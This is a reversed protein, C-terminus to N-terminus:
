LYKRPDAIKGEIATAAATAPSMLHVTGGKGMRGNFNRNTTSACVEGDALVGNSMGLCAGCTSNTVCFGADLFIDILGEKMADRYIKPTAPSLIGRVNEALKKGKLIGAAIRLDELRGNTCSGLYIQDVKTDNFEAAPKVQDPKYGFTAVPVLATADIEIVQDYVADDDSSWKRYEALAAEKSAFESAIFPWLYEVTTIDPMCIGSTGGAEVAMNCLTMRSEMTLSDVTSGCFEIVRDTAGNVGIKGIIALILDKAYVGKPFQGNINFRITKPERFACVGKLIGVELDTTGVGAAFAGFAGHTCTHSDGMIVTNGPRIFGKEPFLAHCVGNAGIDFFDKIGHRHAWDRLIKGQTATKSDKAPTVHDIVAKIKAPDFVRDKKREILDDIAIPTTIEHCLVVDLKLVRTGSFPEDLLHAAFIKEAITKGM